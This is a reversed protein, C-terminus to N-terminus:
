VLIDEENRGLVINGKSELRRATKLITQQAAQVDSLRMPGTTKLAKKIAAARESLNNFFKEKLAHSATKLSATLDENSVQKLLSHLSRDDLTRLDEFLFLQNRLSDALQASTHEIESLIKKQAARDMANLIRAVAGVGGANKRKQAGIATLQDQLVRDMELLTEKDVAELRALRMLVEAHLDSPLAQLLKAAQDPRLHGTILALTQPHENRLIQALITPSVNELKQFPVPALDLADLIDQATEPPLTKILLKQVRKLGGILLGAKSALQKQFEQLVALVDEQPVSETTLMARSAAMIESRDMRKFAEAMFNEGLALLVIAAKQPGTFDSCPQTM